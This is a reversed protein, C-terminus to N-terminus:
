PTPARRRLQEIFCLRRELNQFKEEAVDRPLFREEIRDEIRTPIKNVENALNSMREGARNFRAENENEHKLFRADVQTRWEKWDRLELREQYWGIVKGATLILLAITLAENVTLTM